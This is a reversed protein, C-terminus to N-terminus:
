RSGFSSWHPFRFGHEALTLVSAFAVFELCPPIKIFIELIIHELSSFRFNELIRFSVSLFLINKYLINSMHPFSSWEEDMDTVLSLFPSSSSIFVLMWTFGETSFWGVVLRGGM